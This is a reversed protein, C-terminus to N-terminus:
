NLKIVIKKTPSKKISKEDDITVPIEIINVLSLFLCLIINKRAVIINTKSREIRIDCKKICM